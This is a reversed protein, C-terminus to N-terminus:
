RVDREDDARVVNGVWGRFAVLGAREVAHRDQVHLAGTRDDDELAAHAGAEGADIVVEVVVLLAHHEEAVGLLAQRLHNPLHLRQKSTPTHPPCTGEEPSGWYITHYFYSQWGSRVTLTSFAM